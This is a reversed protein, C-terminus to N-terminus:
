SLQERLYEVLETLEKVKSDTDLNWCVRLLQNERRLAQNQKRLAQYSPLFKQLLGAM